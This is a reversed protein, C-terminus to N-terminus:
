VVSKRDPRLQALKVVEGHVVALGIAQTLGVAEALIAEPPRSRVDGSRLLPCLVLGRGIGDHGAGNTRARDAVIM